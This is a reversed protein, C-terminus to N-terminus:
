EHCDLKLGMAIGKSNEYPIYNLKFGNKPANAFSAVERKGILGSTTSGSPTFRIPDKNVSKQFFMERSGNCSLSSDCVIDYKSYVEERGTGSEKLSFQVQGKNTKLQVITTANLKIEKTGSVSAIQFKQVEKKQGILQWASECKFNAAWSASASLLGFVIFFLKM